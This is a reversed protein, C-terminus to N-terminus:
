MRCRLRPGTKRQGSKRSSVCFFATWGALVAGSDERLATLVTGTQWSRPPHTEEKGVLGNSLGGRLRAAMGKLNHVIVSIKKKKQVTM